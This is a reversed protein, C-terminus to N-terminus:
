QVMNVRFCLRKRRNVRTVTDLEKIPKNSPLLMLISFYEMKNTPYSMKKGKGVDSM